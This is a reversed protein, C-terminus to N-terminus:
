KSGSMEVVISIRNVRMSIWLFSKRSKKMPFLACIQPVYIKKTLNKERKYKVNLFIRSIYYKCLLFQIKECVLKIKESIVKMKEEVSERLEQVAVLLYICILFFLPIPDEKPLNELLGIQAGSDCDSMDLGERPGESM